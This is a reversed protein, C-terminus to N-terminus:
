VYAHVIVVVGREVVSEAFYPDCERRQQGVRVRQPVVREALLSADAQHRAVTDRRRELLRRLGLDLVGTAQRLDESRGPSEALVHLAGERRVVGRHEGEEERDLGAEAEHGADVPLWRCHDVAEGCPKVPASLAGATPGAWELRSRGGGVGAVCLHAGAQRGQTLPEPPAVAIALHRAAVPQAELPEVAAAPGLHRPAADPQARGLLGVRPDPRDDVRQAAGLALPAGGLDVLGGGGEERQRAARRARLEARHAVQLQPDALHKVLDEIWM